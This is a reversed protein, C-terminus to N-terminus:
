RTLLYAMVGHPRLATDATFHLIGNEYDTKVTGTQRGSLDLTEVKWKHPLHLSVTTKRREILLPRTGYSDLITCERNRFSQFRNGMNVLHFMLIKRSEALPKGDLSSIAVTQPTTIGTAHLIKGHLGSCGSLAETRPTVVLIKKERPSLSIEKTESLFTGSKLAKKLANKREAPLQEQWNGTLNVKPIGKFSRGEELVGIRTLLGLRSFEETNKQVKEFANANM